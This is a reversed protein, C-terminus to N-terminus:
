SKNEIVLKLRAYNAGKAALGVKMLAQRMNLCSNYAQFLQDDTVKVAGSNKNRGRYTETQSHCNPCLFRLNDIRHDNNKGNIHDLELTLPQGNWSSIGCIECEYNLINQSLIRKRVSLNSYRSSEKFVDKDSSLSKGKSWAMKAKSEDSLLTYAQSMKMRRGTEYAKKLGVSNKLRVVPCSSASKQCRYKKLRKSYFLGPSGCGNHCLNM